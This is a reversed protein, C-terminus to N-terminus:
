RGARCEEGLLRTLAGAPLARARFAQTGAWFAGYGTEGQARAAADLAKGADYTYPYPPIAPRDARADLATFRNHLCRAPRGSLSAIMATGDPEAMRVADRHAVSAASEPCVLFATGMQVASAGVRLAAAADQGTMIGGAAVLPLSSEQRLAALLDLTGLRGDAADPDFVGRHGGAEFGQVVLMDMGAAQALRAEAPSTVSVALVCGADHLRRIAVSDPLGFHFSVLVPREEVLMDLMDPQESFSPYLCRLTPPPVAGFRAFEPQLWGLWRAARVPDLTAPHHCFLNVGFPRSTRRRTDQVMERAAAANMAGLGLNGVGGAESVAAALAPTSVGAM